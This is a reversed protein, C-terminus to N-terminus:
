GRKVSISMGDEIEVIASLLQSHHTIAKRFVDLEPWMVNDAVLVGRERLRAVLQPLLRLYASKEIDLFIMDFEERTESVYSEADGVVIQVSDIIGAERFNRYAEAAHEQRKEVTVIRAGDPLARAIQLCSYGIGTGLELVRKPQTLMTVAFLLEGKVPGIIPFRRGSEVSKEIRRLVRLIEDVNGSM